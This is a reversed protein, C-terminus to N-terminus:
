AAKKTAQAIRSWVDALKGYYTALELAYETSIEVFPAPSVIPNVPPTDVIVPPTYVDYGFFSSCVWGGLQENIDVWRWLEGLTDKRAPKQYLTVVQGATLEGAKQYETGSGSRVNIVTNKVTVKIADTADAPKPMPTIFPKTTPKSPVDLLGKTAATLVTSKFGEDNEVNFNRWSADNGWCFVAVSQLVDDTFYPAYVNRVKDIMFGGFQEGSYGRSRYGNLLDGNGGADFGAETIHVRPPTIGLRKCNKLLGDLRTFTDAPQYVHMGLAHQERHKSLLTLVDDFRPDYEGFGTLAPHGVGFNLVCLSIGRETALNIAEITWKSLRAIDDASAGNAQPENALYLMRGAKGLEGWANLADSPSVVYERTDGAAQPKTHMGGDQAFVYRGIVTAQPNDAQLVLVRNLASMNDICAVMATPQLSRLFARTKAWDAVYQCQVNVTLRSTM